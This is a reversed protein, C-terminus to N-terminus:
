AANGHQAIRLAERLKAPNYPVKSIGIVFLIRILKCCLAILSQKRRL